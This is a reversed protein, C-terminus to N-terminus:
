KGNSIQQMVKETQQIHKNHDALSQSNRVADAYTQTKQRDYESRSLGPAAPREAPRSGARNTEESTVKEISQETGTFVYYALAGVITVM